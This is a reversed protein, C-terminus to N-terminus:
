LPSVQWSNKEPTPAPRGDSPSTWGFRKWTAQVDAGPTWVFRPDSSPVTPETRRAFPVPTLTTM